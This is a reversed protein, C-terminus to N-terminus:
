PQGSEGGGREVTLAEAHVARVAAVAQDLSAVGLPRGTRASITDTLTRVWETLTEATM